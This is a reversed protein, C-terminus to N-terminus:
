LHKSLFASSAPCLSAFERSSRIDPPASDRPTAVYGNSLFFREATTTLLYMTVAGHECAHAEAHEVLKRGLGQSRREPSVVLSRLLADSGHLEVGVIADPSEASGIYFFHEMHADTLDSAPLHASELLAVVAGRTPVSHVAASM